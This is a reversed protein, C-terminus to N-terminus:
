FFPAESLPLQWGWASHVATPSTVLPHYVCSTLARSRSCACSAAQVELQELLEHLLPRSHLELFKDRLVQNMVHITGAHTWFSDHVGAFSLGRERCEIATMMMHTSDISHIFNPPFASKQRQKMVPMEESDNVRM